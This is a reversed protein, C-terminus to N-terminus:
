EHMRALDLEIKVESLIDYLEDNTLDNEIENDLYESLNNLSSQLLSLKHKPNDSFNLLM